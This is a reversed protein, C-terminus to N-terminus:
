DADRGDPPDLAALIHDAAARAPAPTVGGDLGLYHRLGREDICLRGRLWLPEPRAGRVDAGACVAAEVPLDHLARVVAPEEGLRVRSLRGGDAWREALRDWVQEYCDWAAQSGLSELDAGTEDRIAALVLAHVTETLGGDAQDPDSFVQVFWGHRGVAADELRRVVADRVETSWLELLVGHWGSGDDDM